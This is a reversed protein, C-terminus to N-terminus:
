IRPLLLSTSTGLYAKLLQVFNYFIKPFIEKEKPTGNELESKLM